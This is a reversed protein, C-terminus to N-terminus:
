KKGRRKQATVVGAGLFNFFRDFFLVVPLAEPETEKDTCVAAGVGAFARTKTDGASSGLVFALSPPSFSDDDDVILVPNWSACLNMDDYTCTGSM